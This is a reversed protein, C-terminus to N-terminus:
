AAPLIVTRGSLSNAKQSPESPSVATKRSSPPMETDRCYRRLMGLGRGRGMLDRLHQM